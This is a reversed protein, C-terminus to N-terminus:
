SLVMKSLRHSRGTSQEKGPSKFSAPTAQTFCTWFPFFKYVTRGPFDAWQETDELMGCKLMDKPAHRLLFFLLFLIQQGQSSLIEYFKRDSIAIGISFTGGSFRLAVKESLM